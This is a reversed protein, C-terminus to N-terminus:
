SLVCVEDTEDSGGQEQLTERMEEKLNEDVM